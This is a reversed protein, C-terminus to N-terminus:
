NRTVTRVIWSIQHAIRVFYMLSDTTLGTCSQGKLADVKVQIGILVARDNIYQILPGGSDGKCLASGTYEPDRLGIICKGYEDTTNSMQGSIRTWGMRLRDENPQSNNLLGFGAFLAFEQRTNTLSEKPLCISNMTQTTYM